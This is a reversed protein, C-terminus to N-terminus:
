FFNAIWESLKNQSRPGQSPPASKGGQKSGKESFELLTTSRRRNHSASSGDGVKLEDFRSKFKPQLGPGQGQGQKPSGGRSSSPLGASSRGSNLGSSLASTVRSGVRSGVTSAGVGSALPPVSGAIPTITGGASGSAISISPAARSVSIFPQRHDSEIGLGGGQHGSELENLLENTFCGRKRRITSPTLPESRSTEDEKDIRFVPAQLTSILFAYEFALDELYAYQGSSGGHGVEEIRLLLMRDDGSCGEKEDDQSIPAGDNDTSHPTTSSKAPWCSRLKAVWKLPEFFAVRPDNMGGLVLMNPYKQPKVNTYPCYHKMIKYIDPDAPNGWEEWEFATWPISSDLMTNVADVFPVETLAAKFLDPRMNVVAGVMLGGASRGYVALKEPSTYGEKILYEACSVVDLFTNPKKALKGEEYWGMGMDSGGRVHAIAYIFGRDLLSLRQTSFVPDTCSGYAGYTYLLCPNADLGQGGQGILDKRFVISMPVATGDLGTSFLRLQEYNSADYEPSGAINETHVIFSERTDMNYDIVQRPQVLSSYTFRLVNTDFLTMKSLNSVEENISEPLLSYVTESFSVYHYKDFPGPELGVSCPPAEPRSEHLSDSAPALEIVRVNQHCNSREFVVLHRRRVQFDEILVFDRHPIVKERLSVLDVPPSHRKPAPTRFLWNNKSNENTLVFFYKGDHSEASYTIGEKRPMIVRPPADDEDADAHLFLTESTVQAASNIMIFKGDGSKTITLCFMEDKEEYLTQDQEVSTGLMHRCLKNARETGPELTLYYIFRGCSSFELSEYINFLRDQLLEGTELDKFFTTFQENGLGDVGYALIRCDPSHRLFGVRFYTSDQYEPSQAIENEDLYIQEDDFGHPKLVARCHLRYELGVQSKSYYSWGDSLTVRASEEDADLRSVFENYLLKQLPETHSLAAIAYQNEDEIYKLVEPNERDKLWSYNDVVEDGHVNVKVEPKAACIPPSPLEINRGHLKDRTEAEELILRIKEWVGLYIEPYHVLLQRISETMDPLLSLLNDASQSIFLDMEKASASDSLPHGGVSRLGGGPSHVSPVRALGFGRASPSGLTPVFAQVPSSPDMMPGTRVKPSMRSSSKGHKSSSSTSPAMPSASVPVSSMDDRKAM